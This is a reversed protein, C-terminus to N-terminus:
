LVQGKHIRYNRVHFDQGNVDVIAFGHNWKNIPLYGPTLNCLCGVSYTTTIEGNMNSETHESTQHNHGQMASVKGRLFLGRAVNVPSFISQGFEHGHLVNLAGLKIIRKDGIVEAEPARKKIINKLEFEEVGDLEGAKTWLYHQYREDHNGLKIYVKADPYAQGLAEIFQQFILLEHAFSRAKPDRIFRSLTYFDLTDGNLLIADIDENQAFEIAASIAPVDHYPLHVDSMVLVKKADIIYPEYAFEEAEPLKYPTRSREPLTINTSMRRSREGMKGEIWRLRSRAKELSQFLLKNDAYMIRALKLTPMEWGYKERYERAVKVAGNNEHNGGQV